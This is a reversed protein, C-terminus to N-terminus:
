HGNDDIISDYERDLVYKTIGDKHNLMLKKDIGSKLSQTPVVYAKIRNFDDDVEIEM